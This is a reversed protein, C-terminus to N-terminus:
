VNKWSPSKLRFGRICYKTLKNEVFVTDIYNFEEVDGKLLRRAPLLKYTRNSETNGTSPGWAEECFSQTIHTNAPINEYIFSTFKGELRPNLTASGDPEIHIIAVNYNIVDPTNLKKMLINTKEIEAMEMAGSGPGLSAADAHRIQLMKISPGDELLIKPRSDAMASSCLMPAILFLFTSVYHSKM